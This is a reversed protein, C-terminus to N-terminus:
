LKGRRMLVAFDTVGPDIGLQFLLTSVQGRHHTQHNFLHTIAWWRPHTYENGKSDRYTFEGALGEPTLSGVWEEIDADTQERRRRLEGFDEYLIQGLSTITIPNGEADRSEGAGPKDSLRGLWARDALLLHNLTRHISGFFAGREEKRQEDSLRACHDYLSRNMWRNYGALARYNEILM